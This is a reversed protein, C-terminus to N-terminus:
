ETGKNYKNRWAESRANEEDKEHGTTRADLLASHGEDHRQSLLYCERQSRIGSDDCGGPWCM